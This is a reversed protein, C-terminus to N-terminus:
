YRTILLLLIIIICILVGGILWFYKFFFNKKKEPKEEFLSEKKAVRVKIDEGYYAQGYIGPGFEVKILIGQDTVKIDKLEAFVTKRELTTLDKAGLLTSIYEAVPRDDKIKVGVLDGIQLQSIEVGEIPALELEIDVLLIQENEKEKKKEQQKSQQEKDFGDIEPNEGKNLEFIDTREVKIKVAVNVDGTINVLIDSFFDKLIKDDIDKKLSLKGEFFALTRPSKVNEFFKNQSDVETINKRSYDLINKFFIHWQQDFDFEIASKDEKKIVIHAKDIVKNKSNYFIIFSGYIKLTQAIFKGRIIFINKDVSKIINVAGDIDGSTFKLLLKALSIDCGTEKQLQIVKQDSM